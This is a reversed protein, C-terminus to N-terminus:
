LIWSPAPAQDILVENIIWMRNIEGAISLLGTTFNCYWVYIYFSHSLILFGHSTCVTRAQSPIHFIDNSYIRFPEQQMNHCLRQLQASYFPLFVFSWRYASEEYEAQEWKGEPRERIAYAEYHGPAACSKLPLNIDTVDNHTQMFGHSSSRCSFNRAPPNSLLNVAALAIQREESGWVQALRQAIVARLSSSPAKFCGAGAAGPQSCM